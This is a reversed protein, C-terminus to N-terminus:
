AGWPYAAIAGTIFAVLLRCFERRTYASIGLYAMVACAFFTVM